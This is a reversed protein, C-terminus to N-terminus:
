ADAEATCRLGVIRFGPRLMQAAVAQGQVECLTLSPAPVSHHECVDASCMDVALFVPPAALAMTLAFAIQTVEWVIFATMAAAATWFMWRPWRAKEAEIARARKEDYGARLGALYGRSWPHREGDGGVTGYLVDGFGRGYRASFAELTDRDSSHHVTADERYPEPDSLFENELPRFAAKRHHILAYGDGTDRITLKLLAM